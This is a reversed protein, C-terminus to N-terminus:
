DARDRVTLRAAYWARDIRCRFLLDRWRDVAEQPSGTATRTLIPYGAAGIVEEEWTVRAHPLSLIRQWQASLERESM